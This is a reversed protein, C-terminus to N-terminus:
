FIRKYWSKKDKVHGVGKMVSSNIYNKYNWFKLAESFFPSVNKKEKKAQYRNSWEMIQSINWCSLTRFIIQCEHLCITIQFFAKRVIYITCTVKFIINYSENQLCSFTFVRLEYFSGGFAIQRRDHSNHLKNSDSSHKLSILEM